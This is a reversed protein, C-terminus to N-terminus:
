DKTKAWKQRSARRLQARSFFAAAEELFENERRINRNEKELDKIRKNAEKLQAALSLCEDPSYQGTGLDVEGKKSRRIWGDLTGYPINLQVSAEKAGIEKALKVAQVKTEEDYKRVNKGSESM